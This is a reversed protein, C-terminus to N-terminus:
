LKHPNSCTQNIITDTMAPQLGTWAELRNFQAVKPESNFLSVHHCDIEDCYIRSTIAVRDNIFIELVSNDLFIKLRIRELSGDAYPLLKLPAVLTTKAVDPDMSSSSRIVHIADAFYVIKTYQSLSINHCVLMGIQAQHQENVEASVSIDLQIEFNRCVIPLKIASPQELILYKAGERLARMEEAPRWGLTKLQLSKKGIEEEVQFASTINVDSAVSKDIGTYTLLLMERPLSMCGSWGQQQYRSEDLDDETIWGWLLRRQSPGHLFTTVAYLCGHDILGSKKPTLQTGNLEVNSWMAHRAKKFEGVGEVNMILFQQDQLSFFNCVEWNQGMDGSKSSLSYNLGVDAVHSIFTWKQLNNCDIRYLFATPTKDKFGGSILGYLQKGQELGLQIDMEPWAAIFPDRWGIVQGHYQRPPASLILSSSDRNWTKGGDASVAM